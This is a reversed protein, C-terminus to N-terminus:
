SSFTDNYRLLIVFSVPTRRLRESYFSGECCCAVCVHALVCDNGFFGDAVSALSRAEVEGPSSAM